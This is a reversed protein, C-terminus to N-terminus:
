NTKKTGPRWLIRPRGATEVSLCHALGATLLATKARELKAAPLNRGFLDSIQSDSMEGSVRLARLIADAVVDGLSEGFIMRTSHEAFQWVALAAKLHVFDIRSQRDLIAYLAALRLTQAEARGLL